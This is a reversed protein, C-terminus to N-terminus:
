LFMNQVFSKAQRRLNMNTTCPVCLISLQPTHHAHYNCEKIGQITDDNDKKLYIVEDNEKRNNALKVGNVM